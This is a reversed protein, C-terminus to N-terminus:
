YRRRSHCPRLLHGPRSANSERQTVTNNDIYDCLLVIVRTITNSHLNRFDHRNRRPLTAPVIWKRSMNSGAVDKLSAEWEVSGWSDLDVPCGNNGRGRVSVPGSRRRNSKSWSTRYRGSPLRSTQGLHYLAESNVDQSCITFSCPPWHM